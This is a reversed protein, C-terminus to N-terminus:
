IYMRMARYPQSSPDSAPSADWRQFVVRADKVRYLHNVLFGDLYRLLLVSLEEPLLELPDLPELGLSVPDVIGLEVLEDDADASAVPDSRVDACGGLLDHLEEKGVLDLGSLDLDPLDVTEGDLPARLDHLGDGVVGELLELLAVDDEFPGGGRGGLSVGPGVDLARVDGHPLLEVEEGVHAGDANGLESDVPGEVPLVGLPGVRETGVSEEDGVIEGHVVADGGPLTGLPDDAGSELVGLLGALVVDRDDDLGVDDLGGVSQEDVQRVLDALLVGLDLVVHPENVDGGGLEDVGGAPSVELDEDQGVQVPVDDRVLGGLDLSADSGGTGGVDPLPVGHELGDVAGGGPHDGLSPGLVGIGAAHDLGDGHHHVM